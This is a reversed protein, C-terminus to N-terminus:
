FSSEYLTIKGSERTKRVDIVRQNSSGRWDLNSDKLEDVYPGDVIVDLLDILSPYLLSVNEYTNGTWLWIKKSNGYLSKIHKILTTLSEINRGILPEGGLISFRRIYQPKLLNIITDECETTWKSGSQMDWLESNFCNKCHIPCGSTFLSIGIGEGNTIDLRRIQAVHMFDEIDTM